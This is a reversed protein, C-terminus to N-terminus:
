NPQIPQTIIVQTGSPSTKISCGYENGYILRIRCNVNALGIHKTETIEDSKLKEQIELLRKEDIGGGNDLVSLVLASGEKYASVTIEGPIDDPINSIGHFIANELIPQLIMKLTNLCLVEPDINWKVSFNYDRRILEIDIYKKAYNLEAELPVIYNKTDLSLALLEALGKVVRVAETDGGTEEIIIANVLNLTNFLFHPNMQSWLAISQAKKLESFRVVLDNEVDRSHLLMNVINDNIYHLENYSADEKGEGLTVNEFAAVINAISKYFKLSSLFAVFIISFIILIFYSFIIPLMHQLTLRTLNCVLFGTCSLPYGDIDHTYRFTAKSIAEDFTKDGFSYLQHTNANFFTYFNFDPENFDDFFSDFYSKRINFVLVGASPSDEYINKIIGIVETGDILTSYVTNSNSSKVYADYWDLNFFDNITNSGNATHVYGNKKSYLFISDFMTNSITINSSFSNFKLVSKRLKFATAKSTDSTLLYTIENDSVLQNFINDMNEVLKDLAYATREYAQINKKEAESRVNQYTNQTMFVTVIAFPIVMLALTYRFYSFFISNFRYKKILSYISQRSNNM